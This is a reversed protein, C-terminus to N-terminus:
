HKREQGQQANWWDWWRQISDGLYMGTTWELTQIIKEKFYPMIELDYARLLAPIYPLKEREDVHVRRIADVAYRRLVQDDVELAEVYAIPGWVEVFGDLLARKWVYFPAESPSDWRSTDTVITAPYVMNEFTVEFAQYGPSTLKILGSAEAGTYLYHQGYKARIASSNIIARMQADCEGGAQVAQFGLADLLMSMTEVTEAGHDEGLYVQYASVCIQQLVLDQWGEGRPVPLTPTPTLTPTLTVTPTQTITVTLTPSPSTTATPVPSLTVTIVPETSLSQTSIEEIGSVSQSSCSSITVVGVFLLRANVMRVLNAKRRHYVM